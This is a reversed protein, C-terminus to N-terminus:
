FRSGTEIEERIRLFSETDQMSDEQDREQCVVEEKDSCRDLFREHEDKAPGFEIIPEADRLFVDPKRDKIHRSSIANKVANRLRSYSKFENSEWLDRYSTFQKSKNEDSKATKVDQPAYTGYKQLERVLPRIASVAKPSIGQLARLSTEGSVIQDAINLYGVDMM